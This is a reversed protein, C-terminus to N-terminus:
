NPFYLTSIRVNTNNNLATYKLVVNGSTFATSISGLVPTTTGSTNVVAYINQYTTNVGDHTVLVEYMETAASTKAQIVYKASRYTSASYTDIQTAIGSSTVNVSGSNQVIPGSIHVALADVQVANSSGSTALATVVTSSGIIRVDVLDTALPTEAFVLSTGSIAYAVGPVQITGNISVLAGVTSTNTNTLTFTNTVGDPVIHQDTITNQMSVWDVGNYFEVQSTDTNYRIYGSTVNEPRVSTNGVPIGLANSGAISVLGSANVTLNGSNTVTSGTINLNAINVSGYLDSGISTIGAMKVNAINFQINRITGNDTVAVNSTNQEIVNLLGLQTGVYSSLFNKNVADTGNFANGINTLVDGGLSITGGTSTITTDAVSLNGIQTLIVNQASTIIGATDVSFQVVRASSGYTSPTVGSAILHLSLNDYTGSGYVDGSVIIDDQRTLVRIGNDYVATGDVEGATLTGTISSNNAILNGNIHMEAQPSNIKVGVRLNTTDIHVIQHSNSTISLDVGRRDLDSNLAAGPIFM